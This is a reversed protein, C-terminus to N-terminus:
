RENKRSQFLRLVLKARSDWTHRTVFRRQGEAALRERYSQDALMKRVAMEWAEDDPSAVLLAVHEDLVERLVALDSAIISKGYALYEFIKLPSMWPAIEDGRHGPVSEQYPALAIDFQAYALPLDSQRVFGHVTVNALPDLRERWYSLQGMRGGFVEFAVDPMRRALSEIVELGKGPGFSGVYGVRVDGKRLARPEVFETVPDAADPLVMTRGSVRAGETKLLASELAQTICTVAVLRRDSILRGLLWARLRNRRSSERTVHPLDHAEFAFPLGAFRVLSLGLVDRAYVVVRGHAKRRVALVVWLAYLARSVHRLGYPMVRSFPTLRLAFSSEVNYFDFPDEAGFGHTRDRGREREAQDAVLTVSVGQRAFAACMKMVHVSNATDSPLRSASLYVLHKPEAEEEDTDLM